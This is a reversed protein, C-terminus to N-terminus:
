TLQLCLVVDSHAAGLTIDAKLPRKYVQLIFLLPKCFLLVISRSFARKNLLLEYLFLPCGLLVICQVSISFFFLSALSGFSKDKM